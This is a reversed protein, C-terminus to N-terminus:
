PVSICTIDYPGDTSNYSQDFVTGNPFYGIYDVTVTDNKQTVRSCDAPAPILETVYAGGCIGASTVTIFSGLTLLVTGVAITLQMTTTTLNNQQIGRSM